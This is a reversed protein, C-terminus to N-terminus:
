KAETWIVNIKTKKNKALAIITDRMDQDDGPEDTFVLVDTFAPANSLIAQKILISIM